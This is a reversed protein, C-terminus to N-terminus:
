NSHGFGDWAPGHALEPHWNCRGTHVGNAPATSSATASRVPMTNLQGQTIGVSSDAPASTAAGGGTAVPVSPVVGTAHATGAAMALMAAFALLLKRM